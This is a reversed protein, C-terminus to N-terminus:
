LGPNPPHAGLWISLCATAFDEGPITGQVTGNVEVQLGAGPTHLSPLRQGSQMDAM